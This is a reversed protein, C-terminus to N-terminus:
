RSQLLAAEAEKLLEDSAKLHEADLIALGTSVSVIGGPAGDFPIALEEISRKMREVVKAGTELTQEPLVCVFEDGGLRYISDGSRSRSNIREAVAALIENGRTMGYRDNFQKFDNIDILAVCVHLGYRAVQGGYVALDRELLQRTGLSTLTDILPNNAPSAAPALGPADSTSDLLKATQVMGEVAIRRRRSATGYWVGAIVAIALLVALLAVM